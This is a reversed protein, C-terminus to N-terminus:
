ALAFFNKPLNACFPFNEKKFSFYASLTNFLFASPMAIKRFDVQSHSGLTFKFM